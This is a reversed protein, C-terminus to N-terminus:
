VIDEANLRERAEAPLEDEPTSGLPITTVGELAKEWIYGGALKARHHICHQIMGKSIGTKRYADPVSTYFAIINGSPGKQVIPNKRPSRLNHELAHINNAAYTTWELNSSDNNHKNGDIHNVVPLNTPNPIFAKAVLLHVPIVDSVGNKHLNVVLYGKGKRHKNRAETQKMIAGSLHRVVGRSDINERDLSRVLGTNSVEYSGEYEDIARWIM